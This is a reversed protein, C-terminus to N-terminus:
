SVAHYELATAMSAIVESWIPKPLSHGVGELVIMKAGPVSVAIDRGCEIPFLPDEDGHIVLTPVRITRLMPKLSSLAATAALQRASGEPYYARDYFCAARSRAEEEDLQYGSGYMLRWGMLANDIYETRNRAPPRMFVAMAEPKPLPLERCGSSTMMATLTLVREPHKITLLQAIAGGMSAGVVHAKEIDLEDMLAITDAVMDHLSYPLSFDDTTGELRAQLLRGIDPPAMGAFKTALGVDRNDFRIVRYGYGALQACFQEDWSIMQAGLGAIMFIPPDSARGFVDYVTEIVTGNSNRFCVKTPAQYPTSRIM